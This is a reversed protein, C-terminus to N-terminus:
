VFTLVLWAVPCLFFRMQWVSCVGRLRRERGSVGIRYGTRDDRRARRPPRETRRQKLLTEAVAALPLVRLLSLPLLNERSKQM